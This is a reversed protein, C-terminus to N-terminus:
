KTEREFTYMNVNLLHSPFSLFLVTSLNEFSIHAPARQVCAIWFANKQWRATLILLKIIMQMEKNM